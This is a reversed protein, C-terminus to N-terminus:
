NRRWLDAGNKRALHLQCSFSTGSALTVNRSGTEPAHTSPQLSTSCHQQLQQSHQTVQKHKADREHAWCICKERQNHWFVEVIKWCSMVHRHSQLKKEQSHFPKDWTMNTRPKTVLLFRANCNQPTKTERHHHCSTVVNLICNESFKLVNKACQMMCGTWHGSNQWQWALATSCDAQVAEANDAVPCITSFM